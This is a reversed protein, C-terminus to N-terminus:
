MKILTIIAVVCSILAIVCASFAYIKNSDTEKNFEKGALVFTSGLVLMFLVISFTTIAASSIGGKVMQCIEVVSALGGFFWLLFGVIQLVGTVFLVLLNDYLRKNISFRKNIKWPWIVVNLMFLLKLYWKDKKKDQTQEKEQEKEQEIRKLARYYAETHIEIMQDQFVNNSKEKVIQEKHKKTKRNGM